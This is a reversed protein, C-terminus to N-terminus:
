DHAHGGRRALLTMLAVVLVFIMGRAIMQDFSGWGALTMINGILGIVLVGGLVGVVSGVGGTLAVGGVVVATIANFDYGIGNTFTGQKSLSALLIGATATTLASFVFSLLVIRRVPVGSTAAVDYAAGTLQLQNGFATRRVLCTALVCLGLWLWTMGPIGWVENRSLAVFLAGTPTSYDPYVQIGGTIWRLLGDLMFNMALTWIIPNLRLYGILLGNILGIAVGAGLGCVICGVIGLGQTGVAVMGSVAMIAPISLDVYHGGYTIFMAGVAVIGLLTIPRLINLLNDASLFDRSVMAGVGLLIVIVVYIGLASFSRRLLSIGLERDQTERTQPKAM